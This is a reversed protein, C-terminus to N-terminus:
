PPAMEVVPVGMEGVVVVGPVVQSMPFIIALWGLVSVLLGNLHYGSATIIFYRKKQLDCSQRSTAGLLGPDVEGKSERQQRM